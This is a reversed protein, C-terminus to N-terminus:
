NFPNNLLIIKENFFFCFSIFIFHICKTIVANIIIIEVRQLHVKTFPCHVFAIEINKLTVSM